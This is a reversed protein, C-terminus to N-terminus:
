VHSLWGSGNPSLVFGRDQPDKCATTGSDNVGCVVGGLSISHLPPLTKISHGNVTDSTGLTGSSAQVPGDTGISNVRPTGGATPTAPPIAPLNNGACAAGSNPRVTCVVGDPTLFFTESHSIGPTDITIAYDAPNVPAYSNIDPFPPTDARATCGGSTLAAVFTGAAIMLTKVLM